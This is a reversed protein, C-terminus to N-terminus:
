INYIPNVTSAIKKSSQWWDGQSMVLSNSIQQCTFCFKLASIVSTKNTPMLLEVTVLLCFFAFKKLINNQSKKSRESKKWEETM